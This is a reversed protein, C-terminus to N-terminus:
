RINEKRFIIGSSNFVFRGNDVTNVAPHIIDDIEFEGEPESSTSHQYIYPTREIVKYSMEQVFALDFTSFFLLLFFIPKM